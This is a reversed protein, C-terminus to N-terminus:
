VCVQNVAIDVYPLPPLFEKTEYKARIWAEKEERTSKVDPKPRGKTNAEWVSNSTLNGIGTMVKVIDGSGVLLLRM